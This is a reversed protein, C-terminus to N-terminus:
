SWYESCKLPPLSHRKGTRVLRDLLESFPMNKDNQSESFAEIQEVSPFIGMTRGKENPTSLCYEIYEMDEPNLCTVSGQPYISKHRGARGAIQRILAPEVLQQTKGNFKLVKDFVIRKINLNLGMGVADSAVLVDYNSGVTNFLKAQNSRTESPLKGYVVCCKLKTKAEIIRKISYIDKRSFTIVCDGPRIKSFDLNLPPATELTSLRKYRVVEFSDGTKQCLREVWEVASDDGALHIERAKLGLLARTWAWGRETCSMLQIEDMVAVDYEVGIEAMEMTASVHTAFPVEIM